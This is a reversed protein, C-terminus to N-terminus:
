INELGNKYEIPIPEWTFTGASCAILASLIRPLREFRILLCHSVACHLDLVHGHLNEIEGHTRTLGASTSATLKRREFLPKMVTCAGYTASMSKIITAPHEDTTKVRCTRLPDGAPKGREACNYGFPASSPNRGPSAKRDDRGTKHHLTTTGHQTHHQVSNTM